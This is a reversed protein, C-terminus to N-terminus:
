FCCPVARVHWRRGNRRTDKKFGGNDTENRVEIFRGDQLVSKEYFIVGKKNKSIVFAIGKEYIVTLM